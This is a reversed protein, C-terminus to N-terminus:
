QCTHHLQINGGQLTGGAQYGNSLSIQFTDVDKGPEGNDAVDLMYTYGSVGNIECPGEIHRSTPGTVMYATMGTAHVKMGTGHDIYNLHAPTFSGDGNIGAHFGFNGHDGDPALIWGGGTVFDHCPGNSVGPNCTIDSHSSALIVQGVGNVTLDIANVTISQTNGSSSNTQENIVLTALPQNTLPDTVTITQNPAGSVVVSQGMFTLAALESSGTVGTCTAQTESRVFSATLQYQSGPLVTVNALSSSSNAAGNAGSTSGVLVDALLVSDVATGQTTLLEAGQHGGSSPLQGTDALFVAGGTVPYLAPVNVMAAYARGSYSVLDARATSGAALMSIAACMWLLSKLSLRIDRNLYQM